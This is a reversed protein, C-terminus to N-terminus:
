HDNKLVFIKTKYILIWQITGSIFKRHVVCMNKMKKKFDHSENQVNDWTVSGVMSCLVCRRDVMYGHCVMSCWVCHQDRGHM